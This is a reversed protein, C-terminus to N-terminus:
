APVEEERLSLRLLRFGTLPIANKQCFDKSRSKLIAIMQPTPLEGFFIAVSQFAPYETFPKDAKAHCEAVHQENHQKSAYPHKKAEELWRRRYHVQASKGAEPDAYRFHGGMGNNFWGPTPRISVPRQCCHEDPVQLVAERFMNPDLGSENFQRAEEMGVECEGITGTAYACLEREFTGSYTETDIVFAFPPINLMREGRENAIEVRSLM